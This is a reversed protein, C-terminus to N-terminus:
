RFAFNAVHVTGDNLTVVLQRCTGAWAKSTKWDFEYLDTAASYQAGGNGSASAPEVGGLLAGSACDYQVSGITFPSAGQYGALSFVVPTASGANRSNVAPPNSIPAGFGTYLYIVDVVATDVGTHGADDTVKVSVTYHGINAYAHSLAFAMGNLALPQEGSGDGYDVTATWSSGGVQEFAGASAFTGGKFITADPGADVSPALSLSALTSGAFPISLKQTAADYTFDTGSALPQGNRTVTSFRDVYIEIKGPTGLDDFQLSVADNTSAGSIPVVGSGTYYDFASDIGEAPFFEIRLSPAWDPTWNNNSKQIDGRPVIAGAKVYRPIVDLPAAATITAPGAHHTLKDNYDIWDGAPLYVNRSTANAVLIPAILLADGFMYENFTDAVAPDDPYMMTLMRVVPLGNQTANYLGSRTYPILDHHEQAWKTLVSTLLPPTANAGTLFPANWPTRNPGLLVEMMPVHASFAMWRAFTNKNPAGNYGGTDSGVMSILIGGLRLLQKMSDSMGGALNPDSDGNWVAVYKRGRDYVNRSFTFGEAGNYEFSADYAMKPILVALTPQLADPIDGQDGRDIKFGSVGMSIYSSAQTPYGTQLVQKFRNFAIPERLDIGPTTTCNAVSCGTTFKYPNLQPDTVMSNQDRNTIWVNLHMNRSKLDAIMAAPNPFGNAATDFDMNGWGVLAGTGTGVPRDIWMGASPMQFAQLQDADRKVLAQANTVGNAALDAHHDDRWFIPDFAWNPPMLSGDALTNYRKLIDPPTAGYIVYYTLNSADFNFSTQGGVAITYRGLALTDAYVGYRLSTWYFPARASPDGSGTPPNSLGLTNRNNAGRNDLAGGSGWYSFEWIGYNREGQDVFQEKINTPTGNDYTLQVQLVEPSMFSFKVHATDTTGVLSLAADVTSATQGVISAGTTANATGVTFTSQSQRVLVTGTSKETVTYSYPAATVELRLTASELVADAAIAVAPICLLAVVAWRAGRHARIRLQWM